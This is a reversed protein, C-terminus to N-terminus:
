LTLSFFSLCERPLPSSGHARCAWLVVRGTTKLYSTSPTNLSCLSSWTTLKAGPKKETTNRSLFDKEEWSLKGWKKPCSQGGSTTQKLKRSLCRQYLQTKAARHPPAWSVMWALSQSECLSGYAETKWHETEPKNCLSAAFCVSLIRQGISQM